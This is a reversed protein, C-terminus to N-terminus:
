VIEYIKDEITYTNVKRFESGIKIYNFLRICQIYNNSNFNNCLLILILFFVATSITVIYYVLIYM